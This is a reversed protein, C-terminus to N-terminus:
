RLPGSRSAARALRGAVAAVADTLEAPELVTFEAELLGVYVAIETLSASGTTVECRGDPLSTVAAVTPGFVERVREASAEVLLRCQYRYGSTTIGRVLDHELDDPLPRPVFKPGNPTRLGLRDLRFTRWDSRDLDWAYLYWHRGAHLVRYPEVTRRIETGDHRRYTLRLQDHEEVARALDLLLEPDASRGGGPLAGIGKSITDVRRRLRSPLVQKLKILARIAAEDLGALGAVTAQQLGVSVAIAEDDELLLPPLEAGAGLQYGGRVGPLASVPYGLRRLRDVDRRVTRDTVELRDALEAALWTRRSQLLALLRLLRGSTELM